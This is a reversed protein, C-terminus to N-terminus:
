RTAAWSPSPRRRVVRAHADLVERLDDGGLTGGARGAHLSRDAKMAAAADLLRALEDPTLDDVSLYDRPM